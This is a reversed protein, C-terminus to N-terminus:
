KRYKKEAEAAGTLALELVPVAWVTAGAQKLPYHVSALADNTEVERVAIGVMTHPPMDSFPIGQCVYQALLKTGPTKAVKDVAQAVEATKTDDFVIFDMFRM